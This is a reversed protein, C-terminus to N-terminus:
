SVINKRLISHYKLSKCQDKADNRCIQWYLFMVALAIILTISNFFISTFTTTIIRGTLVSPMLNLVSSIAAIVIM